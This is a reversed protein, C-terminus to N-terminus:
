ALDTWKPYDGQAVSRNLSRGLVKHLDYPMIADVPAPRLAELDAESLV